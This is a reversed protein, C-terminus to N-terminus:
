GDGDAQRLFIRAGAQLCHIAGGEARHFLLDFGGHHPVPEEGEEQPLLLAVDKGIFRMVLPPSWDELHYSFADEDPFTGESKMSYTLNGETDKAIRLAANIQAYDGVFEDQQEESLSLTETAVPEIGWMEQLVWARVRQALPYGQGSNTAIMMAANLAPIFCFLSSQGVGGCSHGYQWLDGIRQGWFTLGIGYDASQYHEVEHLQRIGSESILREGGATVGGALQFRAYQLVDEVCSTIGGAGNFARGFGWREAVKVGDQTRFHGTVYRHTMFDAPLFYTHKLGLPDFLREQVVAEYTKGTVIEIIRAALNFGANNYSFPSTGVPTLQPTDVMTAVYKTLADDGTGTRRPHTFWDGYWGARHQLLMRYTAQESAAEDVVRFDPLYQRVPADLELLGDEILMMSVTGLYTKSISCIQFLTRSDIPLPHRLNSVGYGNAYREEGKLLGIGVGPVKMKDMTSYILEDLAYTDM